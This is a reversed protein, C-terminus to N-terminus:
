RRSSCKGRLYGMAQVRAEDLRYPIVVKKFLNKKMVRDLIAM